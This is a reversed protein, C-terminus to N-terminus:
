PTSKPLRVGKIITYEEGNKKVATRYRLKKPDLRDGPKADVSFDLCCPYIFGTNMILEAYVGDRNRCKSIRVERITGVGEVEPDLTM